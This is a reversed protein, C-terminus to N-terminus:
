KYRRKIKNGKVLLRNNDLIYGFEIRNVLIDPQCRHAATFMDIFDAPYLWPFGELDVQRQTIRHLPEREISIFQLLRPEGNPGTIPQVKEGKKLGMCKYVPQVIDGPKAHRWGIRRTVFKTRAIIQETTLAYSMPRPM